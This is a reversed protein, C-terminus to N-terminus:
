GPIRLADFMTVRSPTKKLEEMINYPVYPTLKSIEAPQHSKFQQTAKEKHHKTIFPYRM